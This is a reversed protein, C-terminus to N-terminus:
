VWAPTIATDPAERLFRLVSEPVEERKWESGYKYGCEPCPRCLLGDPHETPYLWGLGKEDYVESGPHGKVAPYKVYRGTTKAKELWGAARQHACEPRMDNLHWREWVARLKKANLMWFAGNGPTPQFGERGLTEVIQGCGGVADGNAKPGEVGTLSLRGEKYEVKVFVPVPLRGADWHPVTGPNLIKVFNEM